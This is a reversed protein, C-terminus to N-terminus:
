LLPYPRFVRVGGSLTARDPNDSDQFCGAFCKSRTTHHTWSWEEEPPPAHWPRELGYAGCRGSERTLTATMVRLVAVAAAAVMAVVLVAAVIEAALAM